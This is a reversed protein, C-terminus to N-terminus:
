RGSEKWANLIFDMIEEKTEVALGSRLTIIFEIFLLSVLEDIDMEIPKNKWRLDSFYVEVRNVEKPNLKISLTLLEGEEPKHPKHPLSWQFKPANYLSSNRNFAPRNVNSHNTTDQVSEYTDLLSLLYDYLDVGIRIKEIFNDFLIKAIFAKNLGPLAEQAYHQIDEIFVDARKFYDRPARVKVTTYSDTTKRSFFGTWAKLIIM